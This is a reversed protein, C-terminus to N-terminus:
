RPGNTPPHYQLRSVRSTTKFSQRRTVSIPDQAMSETTWLQMLELRVARKDGEIAENPSVEDAASQSSIEHSIWRQLQRNKIM